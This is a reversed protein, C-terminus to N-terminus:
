KLEINLEKGGSVDVTVGSEGPKEFKAPLPFWQGAAPKPTNPATDQKNNKMFDGRPDGM